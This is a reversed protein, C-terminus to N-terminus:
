KFKVYFKIQCYDVHVLGPVLILLAARHITSNNTYSVNNENICKLILMTKLSVHYDYCFYYIFASMYM